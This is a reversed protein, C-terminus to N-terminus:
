RADKRVTAKEKDRRVFIKHRPATSSGARSIAKKASNSQEVYSMHQGGSLASLSGTTRQTAQFMMPDFDNSNVTGALDGEVARIDSGLDADTDNAILVSQLLEIQEDQTCYVPDPLAELGELHTIVKFAYGQDVLFQQRKTSYFM